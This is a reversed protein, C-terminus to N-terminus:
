RGSFYNGLAENHHPDTPDQMGVIVGQRDAASRNQSMKWKGEIRTIQLEIGVIARLQGAIFDDPADSVSWPVPRKGEQQHTLDEVLRRLWVADDHVQLTGRVEVAVYNWTPVVRHTEAKGPYWSPTVYGNPGQFILLCDNCASIDKWHPNARAVHARLFGQEGEDPYLLFPVPSAQLGGPGSTILMGLPHASIFGHLQVLDDQRFASPIYM